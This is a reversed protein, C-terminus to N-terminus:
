QRMWRVLKIPILLSFYQHSVSSLSLKGRGIRKSRLYTDYRM